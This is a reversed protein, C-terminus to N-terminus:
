LGVLAGMKRLEAVVGEEYMSKYAKAHCCRVRRQYELRAQMELKEYWERPSEAGHLKCGRLAEPPVTSWERLLRWVEGFLPEKPQLHPGAAQCFAVLPERLFNPWVRAFVLPFAMHNIDIARKHEPRLFSPAPV